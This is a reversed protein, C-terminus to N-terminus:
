KMQGIKRKKNLNERRQNKRQNSKGKQKESDKERRFRQNLQIEQNKNEQTGKNNANQNDNNNRLNIDRDYSAKSTKKIFNIYKRFLLFRMKIRLRNSNEEDRLLRQKELVDQQDQNNVVDKQGTRKSNFENQNDQQNPQNIFIIQCSDQEDFTNDQFDINIITSKKEKSISDYDMRTNEIGSAKNTIGQIKDPTEVEQQDQPYFSQKEKKQQEENQILYDQNNIIVEEQKIQTYNNLKQEQNKIESGLKQMNSQKKENLKNELDIKQVLEKFSIKKSRNILPPKQELNENIYTLSKRQNLIIQENKFFCSHNLIRTEEIKSDSNEMKVQIKDNKHDEENTINLMLDTNIFIKIEISKQNEFNLEVFKTQLSLMQNSIQALKEILIQTQRLRNNKMFLKFKCFRSNLLTSKGIKKSKLEINNCQTNTNNLNPKGELKTRLKTAVEKFDVQLLKTSQYLQCLLEYQQKFSQDIDGEQKYLIFPKIQLLPKGDPEFFSSYDRQIQTRYKKGLKLRQLRREM